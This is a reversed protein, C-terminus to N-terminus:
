RQGNTDESELGMCDIAAWQQEIVYGAPMLGTDYFQRLVRETQKGSCLRGNHLVRISRWPIPRSRESDVDDRAGAM